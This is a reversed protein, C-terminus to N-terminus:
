WTWSAATNWTRAFSTRSSRPWRRRIRIARRGTRLDSARKRYAWDPERDQVLGAGCAAARVFALAAALLAGLLLQWGRAERAFRRSRRSDHREFKGRCELRELARRRFTEESLASFRFLVGGIREIGFIGVATAHAPELKSDGAAGFQGGLRQREIAIEPHERHQRRAFDSVHFGGAARLAGVPGCDIAALQQQDPQAGRGCVDPIAGPFRRRGRREARQIAAGGACRGGDLITLLSGFARRGPRVARRKAAAAYQRRSRPFAADRLAAAEGQQIRSGKGGDTNAEKPKPEAKYLGQTTDVVRNPTVVEPRPLPVGSVSGVLGVTMAGGGGAGGWGEGTHNLVTSVILSGFLAFHFMASWLLPRTLREDGPQIAHASM